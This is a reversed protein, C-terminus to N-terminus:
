GGLRGSFDPRTPRDGSSARPTRPAVRPLSSGASPKPPVKLKMGAKLNRSNVGPNADAITKWHSGNGYAAVAADWFGRDGDKVVYYKDGTVTTLVKGHSDASARSTNGGSSGSGSSKVDPVLLKMGPKLNMTDVDPNADQIHKWLNGNNYAAVAAAWFGKDGEQVVYYKKGTVTTIVKGEESKKLLKDMTGRKTKSPKPPCVLKMGPQLATSSVTPNADRILTWHKGNGYVNEAVVWFGNDGKKVTYTTAEGAPTATTKTTDGEDGMKPRIFGTDDDDDLPDAAPDLLGGDKLAESTEKIFGGEDGRALKPDKLPDEAPDMLGGDDVTDKLPDALPDAIDKLPDTADDDEWPKARKSLPDEADGLKPRIIGGDSDKTGGGNERVRLREEWPEPKPKAAGTGAKKKDTMGAQYQDQDGPTAQDGGDGTAVFYVVALIMVFLGIAIGIKVDTRM